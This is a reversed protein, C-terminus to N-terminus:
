NGGKAYALDLYERIQEMERSTAVWEVAHCNSRLTLSEGSRLAKRAAAISLNSLAEKGCEPCTIPFRLQAEFM